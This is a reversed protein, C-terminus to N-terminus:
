EDHEGCAAAGVLLVRGRRFGRAAAILLRHLVRRRRRGIAHRCATAAATGFGAFIRTIIAATAATATARSHDKRLVHRDQSIYLRATPVTTGAQPAITSRIATAAAAAYTRKM